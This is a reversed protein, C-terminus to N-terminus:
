RKGKLITHFHPNKKRKIAIYLLRLVNKGMGSMQVRGTKIRSKCNTSCPRSKKKYGVHCRIRTFETLVTVTRLEFPAKFLLNCSVWLMFDEDNLCWHPFYLVSDFHLTILGSYIAFFHKWSRQHNTACRLRSDWDV